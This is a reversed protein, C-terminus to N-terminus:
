STTRLANSKAPVGVRERTFSANRARADTASVTDAALRDAHNTVGVPVKDGTSGQKKPM